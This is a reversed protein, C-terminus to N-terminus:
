QVAEAPDRPLSLLDKVVQLYQMLRLHDGEITLRGNRSLAFIDHWGAEPSTSWFRSWDESSMQMSLDWDHMPGKDARLSEIAGDRLAVIIRQDATALSLRLSLGAARRKLVPAAELRPSLTALREAFDLIEEGQWERRAASWLEEKVL